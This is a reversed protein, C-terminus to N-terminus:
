GNLIIARFLDGDAAAFVAFEEITNADLRSLLLDTDIRREVRATRYAEPFRADAAWDADGLDAQLHGDADYHAPMAADLFRVGHLTHVDPNVDGGQETFGYVPGFVAPVRALDTPLMDYSTGSVGNRAYIRPLINAAPYVNAVLANRAAIEIQIMTNNGNAALYMAAVAANGAQVVTATVEPTTNRVRSWFNTGRDPGRIASSYGTAIRFPYVELRLVGEFIAKPLATQDM